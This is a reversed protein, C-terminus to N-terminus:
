TSDEVPRPSFSDVYRIHRLLPHKVDGDLMLYDGISGLYRAGDRKIAEAIGSYADMIRSTIDGVNKGYKMYFKNGASKSRRSYLFTYVFDIPEFVSGDVERKLSEVESEFTAFNNLFMTLLKRKHSTLNEKIENANNRLLFLDADEQMALPYEVRELNNKTPQLVKADKSDLSAYISRFINKLHRFSGVLLDEREKGIRRSFLGFHTNMEGMGQVLRDVLRRYVLQERRAFYYDVFIQRMGRKFYQSFRFGEDPDNQSEDYTAKLKPFIPFVVDRLSAELDFYYQSVDRHEGVVDELGVSRLRKRKLSSFRKKFIEGTSRDGEVPLVGMRSYDREEWLKEMCTTRFAIDSLPCFPLVKKMRALIEFPDMAIFTDKTSDLDGCTYKNMKEGAEKRIKETRGSIRRAEVIRLQKHTLSKKFPIGFYQAVSSLKFNTDFRRQALYPAVIKSIWMTDLYILDQRLKQIFKRVYDRRPQVDKISPDFKEKNKEAASRLQTFDYVQNHGISIVPRREKFRALLGNILDKENEFKIINFGNYEEQEMEGNYDIAYLEKVPESDGQGWITGVFSIEADFDKEYLKVEGVGPIRKTLLDELKSVVRERKESMVLNESVEGKKRKKEYAAEQKVLRERLKIREKERKTKWLPKEIDLVVYPLNRYEEVSLLADPNEIEEEEDLFLPEFHLGSFDPLEVEGDVSSDLVFDDITLKRETYIGEFRSVKDYDRTQFSKPLKSLISVDKPVQITLVTYKGDRKSSLPFEDLGLEELESRVQRAKKETLFWTPVNVPRHVYVKLREFTELNILSMVFRNAGKRKQEYWSFNNFWHVM